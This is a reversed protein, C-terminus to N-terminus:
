PIQFQSGVISLFHLQGSECAVAICSGNGAVVAFLIRDDPTFRPSTENYSSLNLRLENGNTTVECRVGSESQSQDGACGIEIDGPQAFDEHHDGSELDIIRVVDKANGDVFEVNTVLM